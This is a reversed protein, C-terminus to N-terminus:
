VMGLFETHVLGGITSEVVSGALTHVFLGWFPQGIAKTYSDGSHCLGLYRPSCQCSNNEYQRVLM